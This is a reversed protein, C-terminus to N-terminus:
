TQDIRNFQVTVKNNNNISTIAYEGHVGLCGTNVCITEGLRKIGRSEHIHGFIHLFPQYKEVIKRFAMSGIHGDKAKEGYTGIAYKRYDKEVQDLVRFPPAHTVLITKNPDIKKFLKELNREAEDEVFAWQEHNEKEFIYLPRGNYGILFYDGWKVVGNHLNNIFKQIPIKALMKTNDANGWVGFFKGTQYIKEFIKKMSWFEGEVKKLAEM